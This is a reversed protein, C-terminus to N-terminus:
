TGCLWAIMNQLIKNMILFICLLSIAQGLISNYVHLFESKHVMWELVEGSM